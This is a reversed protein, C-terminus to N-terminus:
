MVHPIVHILMNATLKTTVAVEVKKQPCVLDTPVRWGCLKTPLLLIGRM